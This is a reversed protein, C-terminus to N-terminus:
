RHEFRAANVALAVRNTHTSLRFLTPPEDVYGFPRVVHEATKIQCLATTRTERVDACGCVCPRVSVKLASRKLSYRVDVYM